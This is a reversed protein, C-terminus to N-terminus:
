WPFHKVHVSSPALKSESPMIVSLPYSLSKLTFPAFFNSISPLYFLNTAFRLLPRYKTIVKFRGDLFVRGKINRFFSIIKLLSTYDNPGGSPSPGVFARAACSNQNLSRVRTRSRRQPSSSALERGSFDCLCVPSTSKIVMSSQPGIRSFKRAPELYKRTKTSSEDRQQSTLNM